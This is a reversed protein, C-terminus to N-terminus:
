SNAGIWRVIAMSCALDFDYVADPAFDGTKIEPFEKRIAEWFALQGQTAAEKIATNTTVISM